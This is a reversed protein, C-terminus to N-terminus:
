DELRGYFVEADYEMRVSGGAQCDTFLKELAALMPLYNPHDERPAYSSSLLRGRLGPFDFDQHHSFVERTVRGAGYLIDLSGPTLFYKQSVAKFDTGYREKIAEYGTPFPSGDQRQNNWVLVVWGRPRLIRLFEHRAEAPRFWHFAQASFVHGVSADALGTHEATGALSAFNKQAGLKAEAALRMAENPEIASVQLGFELLRETFLGTGSGIDAVSQGPALGTRAALFATIERPYGPRFKVYDAVRDTFRQTPNLDAGPM